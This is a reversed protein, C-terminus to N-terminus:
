IREQGYIVESPQATYLGPVPTLRGPLKRCNPSEIAEFHNLPLGAVVESM